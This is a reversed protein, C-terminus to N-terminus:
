YVVNEIVLLLIIIFKLFHNHNIESPMFLPSNGKNLMLDCMKPACKLTSRAILFMAFLCIYVVDKSTIKREKMTQVSM